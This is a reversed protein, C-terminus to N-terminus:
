MERTTKWITGKNDVETDQRFVLSNIHGYNELAFTCGEPWGTGFDLSDVVVNTTVVVKVAGAVGPFNAKAFVNVDQESQTINVQYM